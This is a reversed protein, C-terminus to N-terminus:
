DRSIRLMFNYFGRSHLSYGSPDSLEREQYFSTRFGNLKLRTLIDIFSNKENKENYHFEIIGQKVHLLKKTQDLDQFSLGEAGEIDMKLLDIPGSIYDSVLATQVEVTEWDNKLFSMKTEAAESVITAAGGMPKHAPFHLQITGAQNSIAAQVLTVNCLGNEEVNKKLLDFLPPCPEFATIKAKPYLWAFYLVSLGTNSGCDLIVPEDRVARFTYSHRIFIERFFAAFHHYVGTYFTYGLFREESFHFFRDLRSKFFLRCYVFFIQWKAKSSVPACALASLDSFLEKLKGLVALFLLFLIFPSM